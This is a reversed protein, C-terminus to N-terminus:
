TSQPAELRDVGFAADIVCAESHDAAFLRGPNNPAPALAM